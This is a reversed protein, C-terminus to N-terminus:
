ADELSEGFVCIWAGIRELMEEVVEVIAGTEGSLLARLKVESFEGILDFRMRATGLIEVGEGFSIQFQSFDFVRAGGDRLEILDAGIIETHLSADADKERAITEVVVGDAM